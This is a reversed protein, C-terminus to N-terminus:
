KRKWGYLINNFYTCVFLIFVSPLACFLRWSNLFFVQAKQIFIIRSICCFIICVSNLKKKVRAFNILLDFRCFPHVFPIYRAAERRFFRDKHVANNQSMNIKRFYTVWHIFSRKNKNCSWSNNSTYSGWPGEQRGTSQKTPGNTPWDAM